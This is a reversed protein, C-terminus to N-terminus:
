GFYDREKKEPSGKWNKEMIGIVMRLEKKSKNWVDFIHKISEAEEKESYDIENKLARLELEIFNKYVNELANRDSKGINKVFIMFMPPAQAPNIMMEIFHIYRVIKEMMSKRVDRLFCDGEREIRDIEFAENLEKFGPLDYNEVFGEYKKRLESVEFAM